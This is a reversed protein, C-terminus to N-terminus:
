GRSASDYNRLLDLESESMPPPELTVTPIDPSDPIMWIVGKNLVPGRGHKPILNAGAEAFWRADALFDPLRADSLVEEDVLEIWQPIFAAWLHAVNKFDGWATEISTTSAPIRLRTAYKQKIRVKKVIFQARRLSAHGPAFKVLQLLCVLTEGAVVGHSLRSQAHETIGTGGGFDFTLGAIEAPIATKPDQERISEQLVAAKYADRRKEDSPYLM